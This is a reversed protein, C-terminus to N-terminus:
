WEDLIGKLKTRVYEEEVSELLMKMVQNTPCSVVMQIEKKGGTERVAEMEIPLRYLKQSMKTAFEDAYDRLAKSEQETSINNTATQILAKTEAILQSILRQRAYELAQKQALTYDSSSVQADGFLYRPNNNETTEYRKRYLKDLQNELPLGGPAPKWGEKALRKAEKKATKTVKADVAKATLKAQSKREKIMEKREEDTLQQAHIEAHGFLILATFILLRIM